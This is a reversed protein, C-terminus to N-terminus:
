QRHIVIGREHVQDTTYPVRPGTRSEESFMYMDDDEIAVAVVDISGLGVSNDACDQVLEAKPREEDSRPTCAMVTTDGHKVNDEGVGGADLVVKEEDYISM